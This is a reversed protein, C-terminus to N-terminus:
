NFFDDDYLADDYDHITVIQGLPHPSSLPEESDLDGTPPPVTRQYAALAAILRDLTGDRRWKVYYRRCTTYFPYEDPLDAWPLDVLLKWLIAEFVDRYDVTPHGATYPRFQPPLHPTLADWQGITLHLPNDIFNSKNNNKSSRIRPPKPHLDVTSLFEKLTDTTHSLKFVDRRQLLLRALRSAARSFLHVIHALQPRTLRRRAYQLLGDMQARLLLIEDALDGLLDRGLSRGEVKSFHRAYRPVPLPPPPPPHAPM